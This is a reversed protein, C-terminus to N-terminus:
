SPLDATIEAILANLEDTDASRFTFGNVPTFFNFIRQIFNRFPSGSFTINYVEPAITGAWLIPKGGVILNDHFSFHSMRSLSPNRTSILPTAGHSIRKGDNVSVCNYVSNGANKTKADYVCNRMFRNNDHSYIYRYTSNTTWGDFDIAMGDRPNTSGAIECYEVTTRNTHRMWLPAYAEKPATASHLIRCNRVTCDQVAAIVIGGYVANDVYIHELLFDANYSEDPSKYGRDMNEATLGNMHIGWSVNYLKLDELHLHRIRSASGDTGINIAAGGTADNDLSIDHLVCGRLTINEVDADTHAAIYIAGAGQPATFELDEIVWNCVNHVIFGPFGNKNVIIPLAGEGYCSVKIPADATGSGRTDFGADFVEGRRLLIKDGAAYTVSAAKALSQWATEPSTGANTDAGNVADVYYAVGSAFVAPALSFLLILSLLVSTIKKM